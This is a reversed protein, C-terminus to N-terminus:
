AVDDPLAATMYKGIIGTSEVAVANISLGFADAASKAMLRTDKDGQIGTATNANGSNVVLAKLTNNKIAKKTHKVASSAFSHQTFVGASAVCDPISLYGLDLGESKIGSAIANAYVGDLDTLWKDDHFTIM